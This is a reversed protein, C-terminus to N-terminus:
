FDLSRQRPDRSSPRRSRRARAETRVDKRKLDHLCVIWPAGKCHHQAPLMGDSIMRRITSPSVSLAAAAENVTVEGRESREGELRLRRALPRTSGARKPPPCTCECGAFIVKLGEFLILGDARQDIADFRLASSADYLAERPLPVSRQTVNVSVWAEFAKRPWDIVVPNETCVAVPLRRRSEHPPGATGSLDPVGLPSRSCASRHRVAWTGMRAEVGFSECALGVSPQKNLHLQSTAFPPEPDRCSGCSRSPLAGMRRRPPHRHGAEDM